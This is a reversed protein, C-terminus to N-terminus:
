SRGRRGRPPSGVTIRGKRPGVKDEGGVRLHDPVSGSGPARRFTREAWASTIRHRKVAKGTPALGRRGRPPSGINRDNVRVLATDEGGVRLHDSSARTSIDARSTREAWASTIRGFAGLVQGLPQGRRGRPPSGDPRRPRSPGHCDEGGVRLHDPRPPARASPEPTREAWASTIRLDHAAHGIGVPGRRGRPPSGGVGARLFCSQQDEGGVRLHDTRYWPSRNRVSTREAWASTIRRVAGGGGGVQPGRRGRPPTGRQAPTGLAHQADEGGSRLHDATRDRKPCPHVNRRLRRCNAAQRAHAGRIRVVLLQRRHPLLRDRNHGAGPRRAHPSAGVVQPPTEEGGCM